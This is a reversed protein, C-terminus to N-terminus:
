EVVVVTLDVSIVVFPTVGHETVAINAAEVEM